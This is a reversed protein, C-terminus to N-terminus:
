FVFYRNDGATAGANPLGNGLEKGPLPRFDDHNVPHPFPRLGPSSIRCNSSVTQSKFRSTTKFLTKRQELLTKGAM